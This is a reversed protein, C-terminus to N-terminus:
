RQVDDQEQSLLELPTCIEPCTYGATVCISRIIPKVAANDIHRCNWTLLYDIEHVCAVAIHLADAEAGPPVGGGEILKAALTQADRDVPLGTISRLVELRSGAAEQDGASAEAVVLESTFLQYKAREQAWWQTTIQQWAAARLDRSPRAALYSIISTEIYASPKNM